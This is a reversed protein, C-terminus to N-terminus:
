LELVKNIKKLLFHAYARRSSREPFEEMEIFEKAEALVDRLEQTKDFQVAFRRQQSRSKAISDLNYPNLKEM